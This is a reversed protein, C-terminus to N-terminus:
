RCGCGCRRGHPRSERREDCCAGGALHTRRARKRVDRQIRGLKHERRLEKGTCLAFAGGSNILTCATNTAFTSSFDSM